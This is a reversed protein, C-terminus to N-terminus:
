EKVLIHKSFPEGEVPTFTVEVSHLQAKNQEDLISEDDLLVDATKGTPGSPGPLGPDGDRGKVGAPKWANGDFSYTGLEGVTYEDGVEADTPLDELTAVSGKYNLGSELGAMKEDTYKNAQKKALALTVVDM